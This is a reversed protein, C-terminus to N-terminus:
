APIKNAAILYIYDHSINGPYINGHHIVFDGILNPLILGSVTNITKTKSFSLHCCSFPTNNFSEANGRYNKPYFYFIAAYLSFKRNYNKKSFIESNWSPLLYSVKLREKESTQDPSFAILTAHFPGVSVM